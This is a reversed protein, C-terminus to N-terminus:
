VALSGPLLAMSPALPCRQGHSSGRQGAAWQRQCTGLASIAHAIAAGAAPYPHCSSSLLHGPGLPLHLFPQPSGGRAGTLSSPWPLPQPACPPQWPLSPQPSRVGPLPLPSHRWGCAQLSPLHGMAPPPLFSHRPLCGLGMAAGPPLPLHHCLSLGRGEWLFVLGQKGAQGVAPPEPLGKSWQGM